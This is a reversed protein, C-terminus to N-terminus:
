SKDLALGLLGFSIKEEAFRVNDGTSLVKPRPEVEIVETAGFKSEVCAWYDRWM